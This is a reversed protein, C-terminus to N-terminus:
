LDLIIAIVKLPNNITDKTLFAYIMLNPNINRKFGGNVLRNVIDGSM